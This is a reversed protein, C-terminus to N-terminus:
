GQVADITLENIRQTKPLLFDFSSSSKMQDLIVQRRHQWLSIQEDIGSLIKNIYDKAKDYVVFLRSFLFLINLKDNM